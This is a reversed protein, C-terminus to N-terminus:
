TTPIPIVFSNEGCGAATPFTLRAGLRRDVEPSDFPICEGVVNVPMSGRFWCAPAPHTPLAIYTLAGDTHDGTPLRSYCARSCLSVNFEERFRCVEKGGSIVGFSRIPRRRLGRSM